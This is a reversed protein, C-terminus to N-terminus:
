GTARCISISTRSITRARAAFTRTNFNVAKNFLADDLQQALGPIQRDLVALLRKAPRLHQPM